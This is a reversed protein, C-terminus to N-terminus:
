KSYYILGGEELPIMVPIFDNNKEIEICPKAVNSLQKISCNVETLQEQVNEGLLKEKALLVDKLGTARKYRLMLENFENEWTVEEKFDSFSGDPQLECFPTLTGSIGPASKPSSDLDLRGLHSPHVHKFAAPLSSKKKEKEGLGPLTNMTYKLVNFIDLDNVNSKYNIFKSTCMADVLFTPKLGRMYKEALEMDLNAGVDSFRHVISALKMGYFSAIYEEVCIRKYSLDLNDRAMLNSFETLMWKLVKYINDKYELPLHIGEQTSIDYIGEISELISNGKLTSYRGFEGGLMEIWYNRTFINQYKTNKNSLTMFITCIFSQLPIDNDYLMKPVSLFLKNCKFTYYDELNPDQKDIKIFNFGMFKLTDYFGYKALIYKFVGFTKTFATVTFYITEVEENKTSRLKYNNRYMKVSMLVTKLIISDSSSQSKKTSSNFISTDCIQLTPLYYNGSIRFYYKNVYIPVCIYIPIIKEEDKIKLYFNVIILIFDTDKLNIYEYVNVKKKNKGKKMSNEYECMLRQIEFYDTIIKYSDVRFIFQGDRSISHIINMLQRITEEDSRKFLNQNFPLKEEKNYQAILQRQDM